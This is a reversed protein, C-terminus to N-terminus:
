YDFLSWGQQQPSLKLTIREMFKAAGKQWMGPKIYYMIMNVKLPFVWRGGVAKKNRPLESLIYTDNEDLVKMEEDMADKWHEADESNIAADFSSPINIM